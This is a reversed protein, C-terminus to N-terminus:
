NHTHENTQLKAHSSSYYVRWNVTSQEKIFQTTKFNTCNKEMKGLHKAM